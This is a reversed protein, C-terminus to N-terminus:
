FISSTDTPHNPSDWTHTSNETARIAIMGYGLSSSILTSPLYTSPNSADVSLQTPSLPLGPWNRDLYATVQIAGNDMWGTHADGQPDMASDQGLRAWGSASAVAYNGQYSGTFIKHWACSELILYYDSSSKFLNLSQEGLYKKIVYLGNPDVGNYNTGTVLEQKIEAGRGIGGELFPAGWEANTYTKGSTVYAKGIRTTLYDTYYESTPITDNSSVFAVESCLQGSINTLYVLWGTKAWSPYGQGNNEALNDTTVDEQDGNGAAGGETAHATLTLSPTTLTIFIFLLMLILPSIPIHPPKIKQQNPTQM